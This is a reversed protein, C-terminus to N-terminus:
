VRSVIRGGLVKALRRRLELLQKQEELLVAIGEANGAAKIRQQLDRAKRDLMRSKYELVARQVYYSLGKDTELNEPYATNDDVM